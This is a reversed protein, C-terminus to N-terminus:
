LLLARQWSVILFVANSHAGFCGEETRRSSWFDFTFTRMVDYLARGIPRWGFICMNQSTVNM